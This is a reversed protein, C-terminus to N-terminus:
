CGLVTDVEPTRGARMSTVVQGDTEIVLRLDTGAQVLTLVHGGTSTTSATSRLRGGYLRKAETETQGLGLGTTTTVGPAIVDVRLLRDQGVLFAVGDPGGVPAYLECRPARPGGLGLMRRGLATTAEAVTM